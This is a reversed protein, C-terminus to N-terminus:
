RIRHISFRFSQGFTRRRMEIVVAESSLVHSEIARRISRVYGRLDARRQNQSPIFERKNHEKM